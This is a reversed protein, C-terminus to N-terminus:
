LGYHASAPLHATFLSLSMGLIAMAIGIIALALFFFFFIKGAHDQGKVYGDYESQNAFQTGGAALANGNMGLYVVMAIWFVFNVIPVFALIFWWVFDAEGRLRTATTSSFFSVNM